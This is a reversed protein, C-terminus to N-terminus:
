SCFHRAGDSGNALQWAGAAYSSPNHIAKELPLVNSDDYRSDGEGIDVINPGIPKPDVFHLGEHILILKKCNETKALYSQTFTIGGKGLFRNDTFAMPLGGKFQKKLAAEQEPTATHFQAEAESNLLIRIDKFRGLIFSLEVPSAEASNMHFHVRLAERTPVHVNLFDPVGLPIFLKLAELSFIARDVWFVALPRQDLAETRPDKAVPPVPPAPPPVPVPPTPLPRPSPGTGGRDPIVIVDGAFILNPNTRKARFAANLPSDYIDRYSKFGHSSAIKTLNDGPKVTYNTSM